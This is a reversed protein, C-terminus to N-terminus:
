GIARTLYQVYKKDGEYIVGVSSNITTRTHPTHVAHKARVATGSIVDVIITGLVVLDKTDITSDARNTTVTERRDADSLCHQLFYGM